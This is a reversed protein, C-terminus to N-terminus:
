QHVKGKSAGTSGHLLQRLVSTQLIYFSGEAERLWWVAEELIRRQVERKEEGGFSLRGWWSGKGLARGPLSRGEQRNFGRYDSGRGEWWWWARKRQKRRM